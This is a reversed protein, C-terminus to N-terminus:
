YSRHSNIRLRNGGGMARIRTWKHTTDHVHPGNKRCAACAEPIFHIVNKELLKAVLSGKTRQVVM